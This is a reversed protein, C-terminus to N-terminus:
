AELDLTAGLRQPLGTRRLRYFIEVRLQAPADPVEAVDVRDVVIRQEWQELAAAVVDRIRRRTVLTNPEHLFNSLGAGFQSRMLQEGPRTRLIVQIQQRVSTELTPYEMRGSADPLPLLPWGIRPGPPVQAVM